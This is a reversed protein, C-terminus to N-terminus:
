ARAGAATPRKSRLPGVTPTASHSSRAPTTSRARAHGARVRRRGRGRGQAVLDQRGDGRDGRSAPRDVRCGARHDHPRLRCERLLLRVRPAGGGRRQAVLADLIADVNLYSEAPTQGGLAYAEDAYRVHMADRDLDSYVAVTSVGLERCTRMVRVAIEGRNAILVKGFLLTGRRLSPLRVGYGVAIGSSARMECPSAPPVRQRTSRKACSSEVM